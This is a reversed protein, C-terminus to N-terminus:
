AMKFMDRLRFVAEESVIQAIIEVAGREDSGRTEYLFYGSPDPIDQGSMALKRDTLASVCLTRDNDINVSFYFDAM